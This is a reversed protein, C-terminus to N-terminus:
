YLGHRHANTAHAAAFDTVTRLPYQGRKTTSTRCTVTFCVLCSAMTDGMAARGFRTFFARRLGRSPARWRWCCNMDARRHACAPITKLVGPM